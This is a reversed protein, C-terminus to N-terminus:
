IGLADCIFQLLMAYGRMLMFCQLINDSRLADDPLAYSAGCFYCPGCLCRMAYSCQLAFIQLFFNCLLGAHIAYCLLVQLAYKFRLAHCRMAFYQMFVAYCRLEAHCQIIAFYRLAYCFGAYCRYFMAYEAGCIQMFQMAFAYSSCLIAFCLVCMFRLANCRLKAFCECDLMAPCLQLADCLLLAYCLLAYVVLLFQM